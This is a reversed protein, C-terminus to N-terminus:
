IAKEGLSVNTVEQEPKAGGLARGKFAMCPAKALGVPRELQLRDNKPFM